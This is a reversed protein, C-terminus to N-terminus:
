IGQPVVLDRTIQLKLEDLTSKLGSLSSYIGQYGQNKVSPQSNWSYCKHAQKIVKQLM